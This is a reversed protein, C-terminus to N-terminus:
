IGVKGFGSSRLREATREIAEVPIEMLKSSLDPANRYCVGARHPREQRLADLNRPINENGGSGDLVVLATDTYADTHLKLLHLFRFVGNKEVTYREVTSREPAGACAITPLPQRAEHM